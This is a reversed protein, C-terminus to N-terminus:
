NTFQELQPADMLRSDLEAQGYQWEGMEMSSIFCGCRISSCSCCAAAGRGMSGASGKFSAEAFNCSSVEKASKSRLGSHHLSAREDPRTCAPRFTTARHSLSFNTSQDRDAARILLIWTHM